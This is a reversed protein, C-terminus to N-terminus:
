LLHSVCHKFQCTVDTECSEPTAFQPVTIAAGFLWFLNGEVEVAM